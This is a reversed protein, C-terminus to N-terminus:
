GAKSAITRPSPFETDHLVPVVSDYTTVHINGVSATWLRYGFLASVRCETTAPGLAHNHRDPHRTFPTLAAIRRANSLNHWFTRKKCRNKSQKPTCINSARHLPMASGPSRDPDKPTKRRAHSGPALPYSQSTKPTSLGPLPLPISAAPIVSPGPASDPDLVPNGTAPRHFAAWGNLLPASAPRVTEISEKEIVLAKRFRWPSSLAWKGRTGQVSPESAILIVITEASTRHSKMTENDASIRFTCSKPRRFPFPHTRLDDPAVPEPQSLDYPRTNIPPQQQDLVSPGHSITTSCTLGHNTPSLIFPTDSSRNSSPLHMPPGSVSSHQLVYRTDKWTCAPCSGTPFKSHSLLLNLLLLAISESGREKGQKPELGRAVPKPRIRMECQVYKDTTRM